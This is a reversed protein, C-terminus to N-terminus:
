NEDETNDKKKQFLGKIKWKKQEVLKQAKQEIQQIGEEVDEIAEEVKGVLNEVPVEIASSLKEEIRDSFAEPQSPQISFTVNPVGHLLNLALLASNGECNMSSALTALDVVNAENLSLPVQTTVPNIEQCVGGSLKFRIFKGFGSGANSDAEFGFHLTEPKLHVDVNALQGSFLFLAIDPGLQQQSLLPLVNGAADTAQVKMQPWGSVAESRLIFGSRVETVPVGFQAIETADSSVDSQSVRGISLAGDLVASLWVNNVTFVRLSEMPLLREDPVLYNFPINSLDLFGNVWNQVATQEKSISTATAATGFKQDYYSSQKSKAWQQQRKWTYLDTAVSKNNLSLLKGMEWAAAYTVDLMQLGTDFRLLNDSTLVSPYASEVEAKLNPSLPSRYWSVAQGGGHLQHPFALAGSSLYAAVASSMTGENPPDLQFPAASVNTLLEEFSHGPVQFCQIVNQQLNSALGSFGTTAEGLAVLFSDSDIYLDPLSLNSIASAIASNNLTSAITKFKALGADTIQYSNDLACTFSWSHLCIFSAMGSVPANLLNTPATQGAPAELRNELSLLCAYNTTGPQPLRNAIVLAHETITGNVENERVSYLLPLDSNSPFVETLLSTDIQILDVTSDGQEGPELQLNQAIFPAQVGTSVPQQAPIQLSKFVKNLAQNKLTAVQQAAVDEESYVFLWLWPTTTSNPLSIRELPLTSRTLAVHPLVSAFNGSAGGQPFCNFVLKDPITFREGAVFITKEETQSLESVEAITVTQEVTITYEGSTMVPKHYPLFTVQESSTSM